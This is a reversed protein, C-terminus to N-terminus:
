PKPKAWSPVYPERQDEPDHFYVTATRLDPTCDPCGDLDCGFVHVPCRTHQLAFSETMTSNCTLCFVVTHAKM